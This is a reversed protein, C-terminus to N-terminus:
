WSIVKNSDISLDVFQEFNIIKIIKKNDIKSFHNISRASLDADIAYVSLNSAKISSELLKLQFTADGIFIIDDQTSVLRSMQKEFDDIAISNQILHLIPKQILHNM